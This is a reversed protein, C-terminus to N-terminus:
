TIREVVLSAAVPTTCARVPTGDVRVLCDFCVGMCCYVGRPEGTRSSARLARIGAVWLASAITEGQSAEVDRGDFRFTVREGM